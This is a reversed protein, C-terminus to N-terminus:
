YHFFSYKFLNTFVKKELFFPCNGVGCGLPFEYKGENLIQQLNSLFRVYIKRVTPESYIVIEFKLYGVIYPYKPM